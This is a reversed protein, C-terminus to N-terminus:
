KRISTSLTNIDADVTDIQAEAKIGNEHGHTALPVIVGILLAMAIAFMAISLVIKKM